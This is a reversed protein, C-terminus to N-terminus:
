KAPPQYINADNRYGAIDEYWDTFVVGGSEAWDAFKLHANIIQVKEVPYAFEIPIDIAWPLNNRTKYYKGTAPNSDDEYTGFYSQDALSTPTYDSLHIERGRIQDVIMFPNYPPSGAISISVPNALSISITMTDPEVYPAGPTTNVGIGGGPHPLQTFANDTVIITGKAQGAESGNALTTIYGDVLSTGTVSAIDSPALDMEFGFGNKFAAGIARFVFKAFLDVLGNNANVVQQYQYGLVLDNFDYDGKGPWNDEFAFSGYSSADPYYIDFARTPDLPYDDQDDPVGDGDTDIIPVSVVVNDYYIRSTGNYDNNWLLVQCYATNAPMSAVLTKTIWNTPPNYLYTYFFGIVSGNSRRPILYLYSYLSSGGDSKIDSNITIVDGPSADIWQSAGGYYYYGYGGQLPTRIMGNGGDNYWEMKGMWYNTFYWKGDVPINTQWHPITGFDNTSFDGNGIVNIKADKTNHIDRNIALGLSKYVPEITDPETYGYDGGFDIIVGGNKSGFSPLSVIVDGAITSVFIEEIATPVRIKGKYQGNIDFSGSTIYIGGESPNATYIDFRSRLDTFDVSEPMNIEVDVIYSSEYNFDDPIILYEITKEPEPQNDNKKCGYIFLFLITFLLISLKKM